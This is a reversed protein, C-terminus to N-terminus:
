LGRLAELTEPVSTHLVGIGRGRASWEDINSVRDDILVDGPRAHRWKDHSFPGIRFEVHAGLHRRVWLRKDHEATAMTTRRPIATLIYPNPCVARVADWLVLADPMLELDRYFHPVKALRAWGEAKAERTTLDAFTYGLREQVRADFDALVGDLDVAIRRETPDYRLPGKSSMM